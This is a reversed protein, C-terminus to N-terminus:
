SLKLVVRYPFIGILFLMKHVYEFIFVIISPKENLLNHFTLVKSHMKHLLQGVM